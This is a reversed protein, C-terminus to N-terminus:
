GSAESADSRAARNGDASRSAESVASGASAASVRQADAVAKLADAILKTRQLDWRIVMYIAVIGFILVEM